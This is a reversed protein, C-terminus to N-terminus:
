EQQRYKLARISVFDHPAPGSLITPLVQWLGLKSLFETISGYRPDSNSTGYLKAGFPHANQWPCIIGMDCFVAKNESNPVVYPPSPTLLKARGFKVPSLAGVSALPAARLQIM